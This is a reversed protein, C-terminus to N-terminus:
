FPDGTDGFQTGKIHCFNDPNSADKYYREITFCYHADFAELFAYIVNQIAAAQEGSLQPLQLTLTTYEL